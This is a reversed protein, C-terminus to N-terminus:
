LGCPGGMQDAMHPAEKQLTEAGHTRGAGPWMSAGILERCKLQLDRVVRAIIPAAEACKGVWWSGRAYPAGLTSCDEEGQTHLHLRLPAGGRCIRGTKNRPMLKHVM